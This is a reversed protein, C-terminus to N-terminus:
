RRQTNRAVASPRDPKPPYDKFMRETAKTINKSRSEPTANPRMDCSFLSQWVTEGTRAESIDIVFTVVLFRQGWGHGGLGGGGSGASADIEFSAHYAVLVDPSATAEVRALGKGALTADIARVVREHNADTLETGRTWAYTKYQSFTAARDYTYTVSQALATTAASVIWFLVAIVSRRLIFRKAQGLTSTGGPEIMQM